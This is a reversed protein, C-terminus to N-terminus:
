PPEDGDAPEARVCNVVLMLWLVAVSAIQAGAARAAPWALLVVAVLWLLLATLTPRDPRNGRGARAARDCLVALPWYALPLYHTWVLPSALLMLCCWVAFQARWRWLEALATPPWRRPRSIALVASTGVLALMVVIYTAFVRSRPWDVVNVLLPRSTADTGGDLPTLLRRLVLPLANNNLYQKQPSDALASQRASHGQIATKYFEQHRRLTERPGVAVLPLGLGLVIITALAALGARWRGKILLFIVLAAPLLKILTALGLAVGAGGDNGREHLFWAAVVLFLLLLGVNSVVTCAYVYPFVLGVAVLLAARPQPGLEGRLLIEVLVVTLAFLVLSFGAFAVAAVRLPLVSWPVMFLSFFPLYNHVGFEDTLQGTTRFYAGTEWFDRFDSTSEARHWVMVLMVASLVVGVAVLAPWGWGPSSRPQPRGTM